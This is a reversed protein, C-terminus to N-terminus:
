RVRVWMPRKIELYDRSEEVHGALEDLIKDPKYPMERTKKQRM